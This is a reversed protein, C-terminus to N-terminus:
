PKTRVRQHEHRTVFDEVGDTLEIRKLHSRHRVEDAVDESVDRAWGESANFGVVRVPRNYQGDIMNAIVTELSTADVETERWCVAVGFDDVVLYVEQDQEAPVISPARSSRSM